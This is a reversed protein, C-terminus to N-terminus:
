RSVGYEVYVVSPASALRVVAFSPRIADPSGLAHCTTVVSDGDFLMQCADVNSDVALSRILFASGHNNDGSFHVGIAVQQRDTVQASKHQGLIANAKDFWKREVRSYRDRPLIKWAPNSFEPGERFKVWHSLKDQQATPVTRDTGCSSFIMLCGLSTLLIAAPRVKM